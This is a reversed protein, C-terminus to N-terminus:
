KILFLRLLLMVLVMGGIIQRGWNRERVTVAVVLVAILLTILQYVHLMM